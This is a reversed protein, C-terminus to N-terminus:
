SSAFSLCLLPSQLPWHSPRGVPCTPRSASVPASGGPLVLCSDACPLGPRSGCTCKLATVGRHCWQGLSLRSGPRVSGWPPGPVSPVRSPRFGPTSGPRVPGRVSPVGPCVRSLRSGPCVSGRPPGRVSLVGSPRSGLASGCCFRPPELAHVLAPPAPEPCPRRGGLSNQREGGVSFSPWGGATNQSSSIMEACWCRPRPASVGVAPLFGPRLEWGRPPGSRSQRRFSSRLETQAPPCDEPSSAPHPLALAPPRPLNPDWFCVTPGQALSAAVRSRDSSLLPRGRGPPVHPDWLGPSAGSQPDM